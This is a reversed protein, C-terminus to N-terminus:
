FCNQTNDKFGKYWIFAAYTKLPYSLRSLVVGWSASTVLEFREEGEQTSMDFFFLLLLLLPFYIENVVDM